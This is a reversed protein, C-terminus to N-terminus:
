VFSVHLMWVFSAKLPVDGRASVFGAPPLCDFVMRVERHSLTWCGTAGGGEEGRM